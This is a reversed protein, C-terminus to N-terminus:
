VTEVEGSIPNRWTTPSEPITGPPPSARSPPDRWQGPALREKQCRKIIRDVYKPKPIGSATATAEILAQQFLEPGADQYMDRWLDVQVPSSVVIGHASLLRGLDSAAAAATTGSRKQEKAPAAPAEADVDADTDEDTDADADTYRNTVPANSARADPTATDNGYYEAKHKRDRYRQVREVGPVPAQREAFKTVLWGQEDGRVLGVDALQSLDQELASPIERLTWSMDEIPPLYGQDDREGAMLLMEIFRRFLRDPLRM